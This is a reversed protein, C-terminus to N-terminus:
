LGDRGLFWGPLHNRGSQRCRRLHAEHDSWWRRPDGGPQRHAHRIWVIDRWEAMHGLGAHPCFENPRNVQWTFGSPHVIAEPDRTNGGTAVSTTYLSSWGYGIQSQVGSMSNFTLELPPDAPGGPLTVTVVLNLSTLNVQCKVNARGVNNGSNRDLLVFGHVLRQTIERVRDMATRFGDHSYLPEGMERGDVSCFAPQGSEGEAGKVDVPIGM